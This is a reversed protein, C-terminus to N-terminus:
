IKKVDAIFDSVIGQLAKGVLDKFSETNQPSGGVLLGRKVESIVQDDSRRVIRVILEDPTRSSQGPNINTAFVIDADIHKELREIMAGSVTSFYDVQKKLLTYADERVQQEDDSLPELNIFQAKTTLADRWESPSSKNWAGQLKAVGFRPQTVPSIQM